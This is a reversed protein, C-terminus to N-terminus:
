SVDNFVDRTSQDASNLGRHSDRFPFVKKKRGLFSKPIKPSSLSPRFGCPFFCSGGTWTELPCGVSSAQKYSISFRSSSFCPLHASVRVWFAEVSAWATVSTCVGLTSSVIISNCCTLFCSCAVSSRTFATCSWTFDVLFTARPVSFSLLPLFLACSCSLWDLQPWTGRCLRYLGDQHEERHTVLLLYRTTRSRKKEQCEPVSSYTFTCTSTYPKNEPARAHSTHWTM